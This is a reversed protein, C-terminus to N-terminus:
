EELAKISGAGAILPLLVYPNIIKTRIGDEGNELVEYKLKQPLIVELESQYNKVNSSNPFLVSQGKPAEISIKTGNNGHVSYTGERLSASTFSDPYYIDGIQLGKLNTKVMKGNREVTTEHNGSSRKFVEDTKLQNKKVVEELKPAIIKEYFAKSAEKSRTSGPRRNIKEDYGRTYSDILLEEEKTFNGDLKHKEIFSKNIKDLHQANAMELAELNESEKLKVYLGLDKEDYSKSGILDQFNVRHKEKLNIFQEEDLNFRNNSYVKNEKIHNKYNDNGVINGFKESLTEFTLGKDKTIDDPFDKVNDYLDVKYKKDLKDIIQENSFNNAEKIIDKDSLIEYSKYTKAYTKKLEELTKDKKLSSPIVDLFLQDNSSISKEVPKLNKSKIVDDSFRPFDPTKNAGKIVKSTKSAGKIVKAGLGVGSLNTPDFLLDGAFQFAPHANELFTDSPLRQNSDYSGYNPMANNYDYQNGKLQEISEIMMSQPVQLTQGAMSAPGAVIDKVFDRAKDGTFGIGDRAKSKIGRGISGDNSMLGQEEETLSSYYPYDEGTNKDAIIDVPPLNVPNNQNVPPPDTPGSNNPSLFGGAAVVLGYEAKISGQKGNMKIGSKNILIDIGGQDHSKGKFRKLVKWSGGKTLGNSYGNKAIAKSSRGLSSRSTKGPKCEKKIKGEQELELMKIFVKSDLDRVDEKFEATSYDKGAPFKGNHIDEFLSYLSKKQSILLNFWSIFKDFLKQLVNRDKTENPKYTQFKKAIFEDMDIHSMSKTEPFEKNLYAIVAKKTKYPMYFNWILHMLEHYAVESYVKPDKETGEVIGLKAVKGEMLGLTRNAAKYNVGSNLHHMSVFELQDDTIGPILTKAIDKVQSVTLTNKSTLSGFKRMRGKKFKPKSNKPTPTPAQRSSKIAENKDGTTVTIKTPTVETVNSTIFKSAKKIIEDFSLNEDNTEEESIPWYKVTELYLPKRLYTGDGFDSIGENNFQLVSRMDQTTMKSNDKEQDNTKIYDLSKVAEEATPNNKVFDELITIYDKYNTEDITHGKVDYLTPYLRDKLRRFRQYIINYLTGESTLVSQPYVLSPDFASGPIRQKKNKYRIKEIFENAKHAEKIVNGKSDIVDKEVFQNTMVLKYLASQIDSKKSTITLPMYYETNGTSTKRSLKYKDTGVKEAQWGDDKFTSKYEEATVQKHSLNASHTMMFIEEILSINKDFFEKSVTAHKLNKYDFLKNYDDAKEIQYMSSGLFKESNKKRTLKHAPKVLGILSRFAKGGLSIDFGAEKANLELREVKDLFAEMVKVEPDEKTLPLMSMRAAFGGNGSSLFMYPAGLQYNNLVNFAPHTTKGSTNLKTAIVFEAKVKNNEIQERTFLTSLIKDFTKKLATEPDSNVPKSGYQINAVSSFDVTAPFLKNVDFSVKSGGAEYAELADLSDDLFKGAKTNFTQTGVEGIELFETPVGQSDDRVPMFLRLAFKGTSATGPRIVKGFYVRQGKLNGDKLTMKQIKRMNFSKPHEITITYPGEESDLNVEIGEPVNQEQFKNESKEEINFTEEKENKPDKETKDSINEVETKEDNQNDYAEKTIQVVSGQEFEDGEKINEELTVEEKSHKEKIGGDDDSDDDENDNNDDIDDKKNVQINLTEQGTLEALIRGEENLQDVFNTKNEQIGLEFKKYNSVADKSVKNESSETGSKILATFETARGVLMYMITNYATHRKVPQAQGPINEPKALPKLEPYTDSNIESDPTVLLYVEQSEDGQADVASLVRIEKVANEGKGITNNMKEGLLKIVETVEQTNSAIVLKTRGNGINTGLVNMVDNADDFSMAGFANTSQFPKENSFYELNKPLERKGVYQTQAQAIAFNTSRYNISLFPLFRIGAFLKQIDEKVLGTNKILSTNSGSYAISTIADLPDLTLQSPDGLVIMKSQEPGHIVNYHDTIRAFALMASGTLAFAEDVIFVEIGKPMKEAQLEVEAQTIGRKGTLVNEPLFKAIGYDNSNLNSVVKGITRASNDTHGTAFINKNEIDLMNLLWKVFVKTKGAGTIGGLVAANGFAGKRNKTYFFSYGSRIADVQNPTPAFSSTDLTQMISKEVKNRTILNENSSVASLSESYAVAKKHNIVLKKLRFDQGRPNIDFDNVDNSTLYSSVNDKEEINYITDFFKSTKFLSYLNSRPNTKYATIINFANGGFATWKTNLEEDGITQIENLVTTTTVSLKKNLLKKFSTVKQQRNVESLLYEAYIPNWNDKEAKEMIQDYSLNGSTVTVPPVYNNKEQELEKLTVNYNVLDNEEKILDRQLAILDLLKPTTVKAADMQDLVSDLEKGRTSNTILTWWKKFTENRRKDVTRNRLKSVSRNVNKITSKISSIENEIEKIGSKQNSFTGDTNKNIVFSFDVGYGTQEMYEILISNSSETVRPEADPTKGKKAEIILQELIADGVDKHKISTDVVTTLGDGKINVRFWEDIEKDVIKGAMDRGVGNWKENAIDEQLRILKAENNREAARVLELSKLLEKHLRIYEKELREADPKNASPQTKRENYYDIGGIVFRLDDEVQSAKNLKLPNNYSKIRDDMDMIAETALLTDYHNDFAYINGNTIEKNFSNRKNFEILENQLKVIVEDVKTALKIYKGPNNVLNVKQSLAEVAGYPNESTVIDKKIQKPDGAVKLALDYSEQNSIEGEANIGTLIESAEEADIINQALDPQVQERIKTTFAYVDALAKDLNNKIARIADIEDTADGFYTFNPSSVLQDIITLLEKIDKLQTKTEQNDDLALISEQIQSKIAYGNGIDWMARQPLSLGDSIRTEGEPDQIVQTVEDQIIDFFVPPKVDAGIGTPSKSDKFYLIGYKQNELFTEYRLKNEKKDIKEQLVEKEKTDTLNKYNAKLELLETRARKYNTREFAGKDAEKKIYANDTLKGMRRKNDEKLTNLYKLRKQVKENVKDDLVTGTDNVLANQENILEDIIFQMAGQYYMAAEIRDNVEESVGEIPAMNKTVAALKALKSMYKSQFKKIQGEYGEEDAVTLIDKKANFFDIDKQDGSHAFFDRALAMQSLLMLTTEDERAMAGMAEDYLSKDELMKFALLSANIPDAQVEGNEDMKFKLTGDENKETLLFSKLNTMAMADSAKVLELVEQDLTAMDKVDRMASGASGMTGLFAGLFIASQGETEGFNRVMQQAIDAFMNTANSNLYDPNNLANKETVLQIATQVNEEWAGETVASIGAQKGFEKGFKKKIGEAGKSLQASTVKSSASLGESSNFAKQMGKLRAVKTVPNGMFLRTQWANSLMLAGVNMIAADSAAKSAVEMSAGQDLLQDRLERAEIGAEGVTNLATTTAFKTNYLIKEADILKKAIVEEALQTKTIKNMKTLNSALRKGLTKQVVGGVGMSTLYASTLFEVGDMADITWFESTGLKDLFNGDTYIKKQYIPFEEDVTEEIARGFNVIPNDIMTNIDSFATPLALINGVSQLTKGIVGPVFRKTANLWREGPSQAQAREEMVDGTPNFFEGLYPTFSEHTDPLNSSTFLDDSGRRTRDTITDAKKSINTKYLGTEPDIEGSQYNFNSEFIPM